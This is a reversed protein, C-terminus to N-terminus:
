GIRRQLKDLVKTVFYLVTKVKRAFRPNSCMNSNQLQFMCAKPHSQLTILPKASSHLKRPDFTLM